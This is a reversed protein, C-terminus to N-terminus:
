LTRRVQEAQWLHRRQHAALICFFSYLNYTVKDNFSSRVKVRDLAIGNAHELRQLLQEQSALFEPLVRAPDQAAPVFAPLTKTKMRYPPELHWALFAGMLDKRFPGAGRPASKFAEDALRLYDKTTLTLHAVCEGISWGNSPPRQILKEPSVSACVARARDSNDELQQRIRALQPELRSPTTSAVM